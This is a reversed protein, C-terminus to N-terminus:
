IRYNGLMLALAVAVAAPPGFPKAGASFRWRSTSPDRIPMLAHSVFTLLVALAAVAPGCMGVRAVVTALLRVDGMGVTFWRTSRWRRAVAFCALGGLAAIPVLVARGIRLDAVALLPGVTILAARLLVTPVRHEQWDVIAIALLGVLLLACGVFALMSKDRADVVVVAVATAVGLFATVRLSIPTKSARTTKQAAARAVVAALAGVVVAVVVQKAGLRALESGPWHWLRVM